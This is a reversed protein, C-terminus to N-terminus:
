HGSKLFARKEADQVRAFEAFESDKNSIYM